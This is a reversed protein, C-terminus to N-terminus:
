EAPKGALKAIRYLDDSIFKIHATGDGAEESAPFIHYTSGGDSSARWKEVYREGNTIAEAIKVAVAADVVYSKYEFTVIAKM